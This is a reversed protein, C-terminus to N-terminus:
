SAQRALVDRERKHLCYDWYIKMGILLVAFGATSALGPVLFMVAYAAAISCLLAIYRSFPLKILHMARATKYEGGALFNALFSLTHGGLLLLSSIVIVQLGDTVLESVDIGALHSPVVVILLGLVAFLTLFEASVLGVAIISIIVNSGKSFHAFRNEYPDGLLSSVILKIASFIGIWLCEWWYIVVLQYLSLNYAFYLFLLGLNAALLSVAGLENRSFLRSVDLTRGATAKADDM